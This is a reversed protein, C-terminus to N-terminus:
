EELDEKTQAGAYPKTMWALGFAFNSYLAVMVWPM